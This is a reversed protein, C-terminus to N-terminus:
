SQWLQGPYVASCNGISNNPHGAATDWMTINLPNGDIYVWSAGDSEIGIDVLVSSDIYKDIFDMDNTSYIKLREGASNCKINLDTAATESHDQYFYCTGNHNYWGVSPSC